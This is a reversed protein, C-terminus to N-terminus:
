DQNFYHKLVEIFDNVYQNEPNLQLDKMLYDEAEEISNMGEILHMSARYDKDSKGFLERRYLYHDNISLYMKLKKRKKESNSDTAASEVAPENDEFVDEIEAEEETPLFVMDENELLERVADDNEPEQQKKEEILSQLTDAPTSAISDDAKIRQRAASATNALIYSKEAILSCIEDPTDPLRKLALEILGEMEYTLNLLQTLETKNM